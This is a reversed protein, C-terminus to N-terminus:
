APKTGRVTVSWVGGAEFAAREEAALDAPLMTEPVEIRRAAAVEVRKFGAARILELYAAEDVVGAVCGAYLAASRRIPEPLMGHSVVDSICFHGGPRLVRYVEAFARAKDPVLNLVCNSLAVDISADDLPLAEIEGEVFTVNDYGLRAANARAKAVMEPTFDVGVVRGTEGVIRRAVFADIGAGSGLDLVTQGDALGAHETPIGCGLGLDADAVYGEVRDYADGIMSLADADDGCCSPACCGTDRTAARAYTDRVHAKIRTPDATTPSLTPTTM